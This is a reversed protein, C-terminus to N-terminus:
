ASAATRKANESAAPSARHQRWWGEVHQQTWPYEVALAELLAMLVVIDHPREHRDKALCRAVLDDLRRPVGPVLESLRPPSTHLAQYVLDHEGETEFPDKGVLLFWAVLGVSYIDSRADADAPNRLREPAMYRPTGLVKQFQTIDRSIDGATDKVLGFDLLKVVDYEAGRHCLMINHPKIDRHVLGRGHAERLAACVQRVVHIARAVPMAGHQAVLKDLTEGELYEMVYYFVGERTRGYDYIEVTNPHVLQSALQVEREFRAVVEETAMHPKLMKLATPRKLLAHRARYVKAMGGEGIQEELRYQGLARADGVQRKLRKVNYASWLAALLITGLLTLVIAFAFNVYRLPAFAEDAEMEVAMGLDYEGLWRWAGIANAGRYNRYPEVLVGRQEQPAQKDRAAIALAAIRTYPRAALEFEPVHGEALDGGPDRMQVTLIASADPADPLVGLKKLQPVFRSESLMVANSDFAYVESTRGLQAAGLLRAFQDHAYHAFGLAAIVQGREDRVPAKVWIVPRAFAPSTLGSIREHEPYPRIFQTKGEFVSRLHVLFAGPNVSRGVYERVQTAIVLGNADVVNFAVAGMQKLAPQLAVELRARAPANWLAEATPRDARAFDALSAVDRRVERETAWYSAAASRDRIWVGLANVQADLVAELSSARAERLSSKVGAHVWVGLVILAVATVIALANIRANAAVLRMSLRSVVDDAKSPVSEAASGAEKVPDAM